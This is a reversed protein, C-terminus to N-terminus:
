SWLGLTQKAAVIREVGLMFAATRMDTESQKMKDYVERFACDIQKKLKGFVTALYSLIVADPQTLTIRLKYDDIAEVKDINILWKGTYISEAKTREISWKAASANFPTGDHFKVGQKLTFEITLGDPSVTWTEALRGEFEDFNPSKLVILPDYVAWLIDGIVGVRKQLTTTDFGPGPDRDLAVILTNRKEEELATQQQMPLYYGGYFATGAIVLIIIISAAIWQRKLKQV